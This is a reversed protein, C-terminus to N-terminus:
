FCYVTWPFVVWNIIQQSDMEVLFWFVFHKIWQLVNGLAIVNSSSWPSVVVSLVSWGTFSATCVPWHCLAKFCGATFEFLPIWCQLIVGYQGLAFPSASCKIFVRLLHILVDTAFPHLQSFSKFVIRRAVGCLVVLMAGASHINPLFRRVLSGSIVCVNSSCYILVLSIVLFLHICMCFSTSCEVLTLIQTNTVFYKQFLAPCFLGEAGNSWSSNVTIWFFPDFIM